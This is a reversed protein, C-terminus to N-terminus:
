RATASMQAVATDLEHSVRTFELLEKKSKNARAVAQELVTVCVQRNHYDDHVLRMAIKLKEIEPLEANLQRKRDNTEKVIQQLAMSYDENFLVSASAWDRLPSGDATEYGVARCTLLAPFAVQYCSRRVHAETPPRRLERPATRELCLAAHRADAQGVYPVM